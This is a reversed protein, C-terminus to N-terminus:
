RRLIKELEAIYSKFASRGEETLEYFNQSRGVGEVKESVVFDAKALTRLHTILNGDSMKLESKLDQFTWREARSVLLSMIGLRAKEHILKDLKSLDM